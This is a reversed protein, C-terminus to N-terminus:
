QRQFLLLFSRATSPSNGNTIMRRSISIVAKFFKAIIRHMASLMMFRSIWKLRLRLPRRREEDGGHVFISRHHLQQQPGACALCADRRVEGARGPCSTIGQRNREAPIGVFGVSQNSREMIEGFSRDQGVANLDIRAVTHSLVVLWAIPKSGSLEADGLQDKVDLAHLNGQLQELRSARTIVTGVKPNKLCWALAMQAM